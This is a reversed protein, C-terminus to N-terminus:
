YYTKNLFAPCELLKKKKSVKKRKTKIQFLYQLSFEHAGGSNAGLSSINMDFSYGFEFNDYELGLVLIIADHSTHDPISEFLPLGRYWLGITFPQYNFSSGVDLQRFAGQRKFIFGPAASAYRNGRFVSNELPIRAGGHLTFRVPLRNDNTLLSNDPENLHFFSVGLWYKQNYLLAGGGFDFYSSADIFLAGPDMSPAGPVNFDIQDGFLLNQYDIDRSVLGFSLAPKFIWKNNFSVTYSYNFNVSTSRLSATGAKDANVLVGFGSNLGPINADYSVSSNSFVQPLNPWQLRHNIVVRNAGTAGAFAPNLYLPNAYYQSYQIDQSRGSLWMSFACIMLIYKMM